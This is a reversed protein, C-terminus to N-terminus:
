VYVMEHSRGLLVFLHWIAHAFAIIGDLKFFVVGVAYMVGGMMMWELGTRDNMTFIAVSPGAAIFIYLITELTKYREHFNYQYLIGLIAFVWIM